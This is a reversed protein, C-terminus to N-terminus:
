RWPNNALSAIQDCTPMNVIDRCYMGYIPANYPVVIEGKHPACEWVWTRCKQGTAADIALNGGTYDLPEFHHTIPSQEPKAQAQVPKQDCATHSLIATLAAIALITKM